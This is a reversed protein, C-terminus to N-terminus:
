MYFEKLPEPYVNIVWWCLMIDIFHSSQLTVPIKFSKIFVSLPFNLLVMPRSFCYLNSVQIDTLHPLLMLLSLFLSECCM